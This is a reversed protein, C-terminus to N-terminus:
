VWCRFTDPDLPPADRQLLSGPRVSELTDEPSHKGSIREFTLPTAVNIMEVKAQYQVQGGLQKYCKELALARPLSGGLPYAAQQRYAIPM